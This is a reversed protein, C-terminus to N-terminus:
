FPRMNDKNLAAVISTEYIEDVFFIPPWELRTLSSWLQKGSLVPQSSGLPIM